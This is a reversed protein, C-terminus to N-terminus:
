GGDRCVLLWSVAISRNRGHSPQLLVKMLSILWGKQVDNGIAAGGITGAQGIKNIEVGGRQADRPGGSMRVVVMTAMAVM